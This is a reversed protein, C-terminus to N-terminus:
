PALIVDTDIVRMDQMMDLYAQLYFKHSAGVIVLTRAGPVRAVADRINAAMRLNRTEWYGLYRRGFQQPSAERAAAGFDSEYILRAQDPANYVRYASLVGGSQGLQAVLAQEDAKRRATDPNDWAAMIAAGYAEEDPVPADASHDDMPVVRELGLRAALPAAILTTENRRNRLKELRAVLTADLADGQHREAWPLRLWQVLASDQEGGALFLAALHRRQSPSPDAPWIALLKEAEANAAGVDLGTAARAPAPDWCYDKVSDAYRAPYRRLADCQLGSLSEVAIIAPKWAALRDILPALSSPDFDDPWGSLHATGLVMIANPRGRIDDKLARPDFGPGSAQVMTTAMGAMAAAMMMARFRMM